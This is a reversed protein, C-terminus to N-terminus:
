PISRVPNWNNDLRLLALTFVDNHIMLFLHIHFWLRIHIDGQASGCSCFQQLIVIPEGPILLISYDEWVYRERELQEKEICYLLFSSFFLSMNGTLDPESNAVHSRPNVM